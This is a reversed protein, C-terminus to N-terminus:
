SRTQLYHILMDVHITQFLVGDPLGYMEKYFKSM